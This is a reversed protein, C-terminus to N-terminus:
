LTLVPLYLLHPLFAGLSSKLFVFHAPRPANGRRMIGEPHAHGPIPRM